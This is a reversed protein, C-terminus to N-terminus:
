TSPLGLATKVVTGVVHTVAKIEKENDAIFVAIRKIWGTQPLVVRDGPQSKSVVQMSASLWRFLGNFDLGELELPTRVAIHSLRRIDSDGVAIAFFAVRKAEEDARLRSSAAEVAADTEGEPHGDTIM